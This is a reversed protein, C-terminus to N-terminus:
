DKERGPNANLEPRDSAEDAKDKVFSTADEFAEKVTELRDGIREGINSERQILGGPQPKEIDTIKGQANNKIVSESANDGPYILRADTDNNLAILQESILQLDARDSGSSSNPAVRYETYGDGGNKHPNNMGGAQVPPNTPRAGQQDGSSCATTFFLIAGAIFVGLIQHINLKKFLATLKQM